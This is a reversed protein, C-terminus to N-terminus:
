LGLNISCTVGGEATQTVEGGKARCAAVRQEADRMLEDKNKDYWQQSESPQTEGCAGLALAIALGAVFKKLM